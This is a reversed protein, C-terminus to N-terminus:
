LHRLHVVLSDNVRSEDIALLSKKSLKEEKFLKPDLVNAAGLITIHRSLSTIDELTRVHWKHEPFRPNHQKTRISGIASTTTLAMEFQGMHKRLKVMLDKIEEEEYFALVGEAIFLTPKVPLSHSATKIWDNEFISSKILVRSDELKLNLHEWALIKLDIMVPLDVDVFTTRKINLKEEQALREPRTCLGAGLTIVMAEGRRHKTIFETTIRDIEQARAPIIIGLPDPRAIKLALEKVLDSGTSDRFPQALVDNKTRYILASFASKSVPSLKARHELIAEKTM